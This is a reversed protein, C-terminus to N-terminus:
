RGFTYNFETGDPLVGEISKLKAGNDTLQKVDDPTKVKKGNIGMIVYGQAMGIDKFRGKNVELVKVGYDIHLSNMESPSLSQLRAGFIVDQANEM